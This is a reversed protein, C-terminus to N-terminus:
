QITKEHAAQDAQDAAVEARAKVLEAEILEAPVAAIAEESRPAFKLGQLWAKRHFPALTACKDAFEARVAAPDVTEGSAPVNAPVNSPATETIVQVPRAAPAVPLSPAIVPSAVVPAVPEGDTKDVNVYEM